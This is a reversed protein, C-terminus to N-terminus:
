VLRECRYPTTDRLALSLAGQLSDGLALKNLARYPLFPTDAYSHALGGTLSFCGLKEVDLRELGLRIFHCAAKVLSVGCADGSAAYQFILPAFAAYDAAKATRSFHTIARADGEFHSLAADVLGTRPAMDDFALLAEELLKRGLWAGGAHDSLMFGRGGIVSMEGSVRKIFAAGTGLIVAAGDSNGLAGEFATLTDSEIRTEGFPLPKGFEHRNGLANAGALGLVAYTQSLISINRGANLAAQEAAERIHAFANAADAGINAPGSQGQGLVNGAQDALIARCGTGGGDIACLYSMAAKTM